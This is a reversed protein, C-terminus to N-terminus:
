DNKRMWIISGDEQKKLEFHIKGSLADIQGKRYANHREPNIFLYLCLMSVVLGVCLGTYFNNM